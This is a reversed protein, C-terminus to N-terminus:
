KIKQILFVTLLYNSLKTKILNDIHSLEDMLFGWVETAQPFCGYLAKLSMELFDGSVEIKFKGILLQGSM